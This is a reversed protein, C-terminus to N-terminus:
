WGSCTDLGSPLASENNPLVTSSSGFVLCDSGLTSSKCSLAIALCGM